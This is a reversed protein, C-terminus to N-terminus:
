TRHSALNHTLGLHSAILDIPMRKALGIKMKMANENAKRGYRSM